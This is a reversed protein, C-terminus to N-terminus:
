ASRIGHPCAPGHRALAAMSTAQALEGGFDGSCPRRIGQESGLVDRAPNRADGAYLVGQLQLALAVAPATIACPISAAGVDAFRQGSVRIATAVSVTDQADAGGFGDTGGAAADM